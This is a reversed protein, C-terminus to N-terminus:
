WLRRRPRHLETLPRPSGPAMGKAWSPGPGVPRRSALHGRSIALCRVIRRFSAFQDSARVGASHQGVQHRPEDQAHDRWWEYQSTCIDLLASHEQHEEVLPASRPFGHWVFPAPRRKSGRGPRRCGVRVRHLPEISHSSRRMCRIQNRVRRRSRARVICLTSQSGEGYPQQDRLDTDIQARWREM